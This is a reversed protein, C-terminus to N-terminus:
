PFTTKMRLQGPFSPEVNATVEGDTFTVIHGSLAVEPHIVTFGAPVKNQAIQNGDSDYYKFTALESDPLDYLLVFDDQPYATGTDSSAAHSTGNLTYDLTHGMTHIKAHGHLAGTTSKNLYIKGDPNAEIAEVITAYNAITGDAAIETMTQHTNMKSYTASYGNTYKGQYVHSYRYGDMRQTSYVLRDEFHKINSKAIVTDGSMLNANAASNPMDERPTYASALTAFAVGLLPAASLIVLLAKETTKM